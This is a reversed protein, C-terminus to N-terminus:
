SLFSFLRGIKKWINANFRCIRRYLTPKLARRHCKPCLYVEYDEKKDEIFSFKIYHWNKTEFVWVLEEKSNILSACRYCKYFKKKSSM